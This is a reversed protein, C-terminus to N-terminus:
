PAENSVYLRLSAQDNEVGQFLTMSYLDTRQKLHILATTSHYKRVSTPTDGPETVWYLIEFSTQPALTRDGKRLIVHATYTRRGCVVAWDPLDRIRTHTCAEVRSGDNPVYTFNMRPEAKLLGPALLFSFLLIAKIMGQNVLSERKERISSM